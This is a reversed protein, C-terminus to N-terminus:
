VYAYICTYTYVCSYVWIHHVSIIHLYIGDELQSEEACKEAIRDLNEQPHEHISRIHTIISLSM